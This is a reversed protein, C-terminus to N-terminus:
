KLNQIQSLIDEPVGYSKAQKFLSEKQEPTAGSMMQQIIAQPNGNSQMLANVTQFGKPNKIKLQNMLTQTIMNLQM